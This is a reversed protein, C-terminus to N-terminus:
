PRPHLYWEKNEVGRTVAWNAYGEFFTDISRSENRRLLITEKFMDIRANALYFAFPFNGSTVSRVFYKGSAPDSADDDTKFYGTRMKNTPAEFPIHVEWTKNGEENRYIFPQVTTHSVTLGEDYILELIYTTGLEATINNTLYYVNGDVPFQVQEVTLSNKAQKKMVISSPQDELQLRLALGSVLEVYNQYTTLYFTEKKIKFDEEESERSMTKEHQCDVVVDNLDYDGKSPWLDEFAYIGGTTTKKEEVEPLPTFANVPKLAFVVDDYDQDNCADEFSVIAFREEEDGNMRTYAFKASRSEGDPNCYQYPAQGPTGFPQCFSAGPTSAGWVNYKRSADALGRIAYNAGQMGWGNSKLIFGIKIGIPFVKSSDEYSGSAIHPYYMLQVADGRNVGINGNYSYNSNMRAWHGDQTNPFLMIINLDEPHQPADGFYYYYGLSSNWCTSGGLMTITVESEQELTLDPYNRYEESCAKNADLAQGITRYLGEIDDESFLLESRVDDGPQIIYDPAGSHKDWTGLPTHWEKYIQIPNHNDDLALTGDENVLYSLHQMTSLDSTSEGSRTVGARTQYSGSNVAVARAAGNQVNVEMMRQSVLFNGTVVYLHEAYAPLQIKQSFKGKADTFSEFIPLIREDLREDDGEGVFPNESYVSFFVQGYTQFASYDVTLNVDQVTSFSFPNAEGVNHNNTKVANSDYVDKDSCSCFFVSSIALIAISSVKITSKM